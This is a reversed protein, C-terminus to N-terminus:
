IIHIHDFSEKDKSRIPKEKVTKPNSSMSTSKVNNSLKIHDFNKDVRSVKNRQDSIHDYSKKSRIKEINQIKKDRMPNMLQSINKFTQSLM